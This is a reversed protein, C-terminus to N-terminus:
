EGQVIPWLLLVIAAIASSLVLCQFYITSVLKRRTDEDSTALRQALIFVSGLQATTTLLASIASTGSFLALDAPGLVRPTLPLTLVPLAAQDLGPLLFLLLPRRVKAGSQLTM